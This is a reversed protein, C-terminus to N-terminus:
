GRRIRIWNNRFMLYLKRYLPAKVKMNTFTARARSRKRLSGSWAHDHRKGKSDGTM